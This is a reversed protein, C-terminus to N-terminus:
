AVTVNRSIEVSFDVGEGLSADLSESPCSGLGRHPRMM